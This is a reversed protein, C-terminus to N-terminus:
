FFGYDPNTGSMAAMLLLIAPHRITPLNNQVQGEQIGRIYNGVVTGPVRPGYHKAIIYAEMWYNSNSAINLANDLNGKMLADLLLASTDESTEGGLEIRLSELIGLYEAL